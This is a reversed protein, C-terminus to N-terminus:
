ASTASTYIGAKRHSSTTMSRVFLAHCSSKPIACSNRRLRYWVVLAPDPCPDARSKSIFARNQARAGQARAM